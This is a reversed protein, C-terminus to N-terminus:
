SATITNRADNLDLSEQTGTILNKLAIKGLAAEDPFIIAAWTAGRKVASTLQKKLDFPPLAQEVILGAARLTTACTHAFNTEQASYPIVIIRNTPTPSVTKNQAALMEELSVDSVGFGIGSVPSGGVAEVLNDYRGGGFIARRFTGSTEYVEFVLGTYYTFGRIITPDVVISDQWGRRELINVVATLREGYSSALIEPLPTALLKILKEAAAPSSHKTLETVFADPEMKDRADLTGLLATWNEPACGAEVLWHELLRRDNLRLQIKKMDTGLSTIMALALDLVEADAEATDSGILDVNIQLFNRLRGKQPREYRWCEPFSYWRIISPLERQKAAILRALSPTMEPRLVLREGGRDEFVYSQREIIETSSKAAYLSLPELIPAEYPLYGYSEITKKIPSLLAERRALDEPYFDRTGKLPQISSPMTIRFYLSINAGFVEETL